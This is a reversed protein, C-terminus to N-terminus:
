PRAASGGDYRTMSLVGFEDDVDVGVAGTLEARVRQEDIGVGIVVVSTSPPEGAWGRSEVSIRGGVAHVVYRGRHGPLEFHVWGKIRYTGAPPRELFAAFRRPNLPESSEFSVSQYDDHLHRHGACGDGAHEDTDHRVDGARGEERLLDDLSLQRPRSADEIGAPREDFLMTPDVVGGTTLVVPATSNLEGIEALLATAGVDPLLDAKNVVVLDAVRVHSELEPHRRRTEGFGGADVVYVLGGYVVRPDTLSAVMAILTRPEALGSAEIVIVDVGGSASEAGTGGRSAILRGIVAAPGDPSDDDVTCCMCGNGLGVVGDVQGAVLLADINIAGFDNIILGIRTGGCNRLLHNLLSSKGSGLYGAVLVVPVRQRSRASM